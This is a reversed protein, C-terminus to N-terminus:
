YIDGVDILGFKNLHVKIRNVHNSLIITFDYQSCDNGNQDCLHVDPDPAEYVVSARQGTISGSEGDVLIDEIYVNGILNIDKQYQEGSDYYYDGDVDAFRRYYDNNPNQRSFYVGWGGDPPGTGFEKLAMCHSQMQRIDSAMQQASMQLNANRRGRAYDATGATIILGVIGIVVLLEILTFGPRKNSYLAM